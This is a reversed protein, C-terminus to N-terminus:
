NGTWANIDDWTWAVGLKGSVNDARTFGNLDSQTPQDNAGQVDVLFPLFVYGDFASSLGLQKATGEPAISRPGTTHDSNCSVLAALACVTIASRWSSRPYRRGKSEETGPHM